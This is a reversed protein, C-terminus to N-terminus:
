KESESRGGVPHPRLSLSDSGGDGQKALFFALYLRSLSGLHIQAQERSIGVAHCREMYAIYRNVLAESFEM